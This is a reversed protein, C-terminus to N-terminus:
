NESAYNIVTRQQEWKTRQNLTPLYEKFWRDWMRKALQMSRKYTNRLAEVPDLPPGMRDKKGASSGILFHNPTLTEKESSNQPMYTLPGSNICIEAELQVTTLIEDNLKRGDNLAQLGVKVRVMREWVGGMLPRLHPNWKTHSDTFITACNAGQFNTGNDSFIEVPSGRRCVFRRIDM